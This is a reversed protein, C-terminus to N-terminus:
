HHGNNTQYPDIIHSTATYSLIAFVLAGGLFWLCTNEGIITKLIEIVIPTEKNTDGAAYFTVIICIIAIAAFILQRAQDSVARQALYEDIMEHGHHGMTIRQRM